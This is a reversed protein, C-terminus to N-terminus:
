PKHHIVSNEAVRTCKGSHSAGHGPRGASFSERDGPHPHQGPTPHPQVRNHIGFERSFKAAHFSMGARTLGLERSLHALSASDVLDPRIVWVMALARRGVTRDFNRGYIGSTGSHGEPKALWRLLIGVADAAQRRADAVELERGAEGLAEELGAWDFDTFRDDVSLPDVTPSVVEENFPSNM